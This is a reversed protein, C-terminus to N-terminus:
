RGSASSVATGRAGGEIQETAFLLGDKMKLGVRQGQAIDSEAIAACVTINTVARQVLSVYGQLSRLVELIWNVGQTSVRYSSRGTSVVLKEEPLHRVHKSIAQPTIGLKAAIKKQKVEPGHDAIEVLIQFRTALNKNSLIEVM